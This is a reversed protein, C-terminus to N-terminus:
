FLSLIQHSNNRTVLHHRPPRLDLFLHGRFVRHHHVGVAAPFSCEVRASAENLDERKEPDVLPPPLPGLSSSRQDRLSQRHHDLRASPGPRISWPKWPAGITRPQQGALPAPLAQRLPDPHSGTFTQGPPPAAMAPHRSRGLTRSRNPDARSRTLPLLPHHRRQPRKAPSNPKQLDAVGHVDLTRHSASVAM